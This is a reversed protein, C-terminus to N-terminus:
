ETRNESKVYFFHLKFDIVYTQNLLLTIEISNIHKRTARRLLKDTEITASYLDFLYM